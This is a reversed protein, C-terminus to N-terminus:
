SNAKVLSTTSALSLRALRLGVPEPSPIPLSILLQDDVLVEVPGAEGPDNVAIKHRIAPNIYFVPAQALTWQQGGRTAELSAVRKESDLTAALFDRQGKARFVLGAASGRALRLFVRVRASSCQHQLLLLTLQQTVELSMAPNSYPECLPGVGAVPRHSPPPGRAQHQKGAKDVALGSVVRDGEGPGAEGAAEVRFLENEAAHLGAFREQQPEVAVVPAASEPYFPAAKRAKTYELDRTSSPISDVSQDDFNQPPDCGAAAAPALLLLLPVAM